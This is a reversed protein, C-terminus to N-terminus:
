RFVSVGAEAGGKRGKAMGTGHAAKMPSVFLDVARRPGRTIGQFLQGKEARWGSCIALVTGASVGIGAQLQTIGSARVIFQQERWHRQGRPAGGEDLSFVHTRGELGTDFVIARTGTQLLM